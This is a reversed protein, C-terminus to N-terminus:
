RKVISYRRSVRYGLAVAVERAMEKIGSVVIESRRRGRM